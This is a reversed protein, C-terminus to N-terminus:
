EQVVLPLFLQLRQNAETNGDANDAAADGETSPTQEM